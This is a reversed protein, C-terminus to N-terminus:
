HSHSPVWKFLSKGISVLFIQQNFYVLSPLFLCLVDCSLFLCFCCRSLSASSWDAPDPRPTRTCQFAHVNSCQCSSLVSTNIWPWTGGFCSLSTKHNDEIAPWRGPHYVLRSFPFDKVLDVSSSKSGLGLCVESPAEQVGVGGSMYGTSVLTSNLLKRYLM